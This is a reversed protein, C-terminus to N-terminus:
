EANDSNLQQCIRLSRTYKEIMNSHDNEIEDVRRSLNLTVNLLLFQSGTFISFFLLIFILLANDVWTSHRRDNLM